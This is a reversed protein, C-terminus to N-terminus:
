VKQLGPQAFQVGVTTGTGGAGAALSVQANHAQAIEHVIALGLGSGDVGSGLVRYFREFVREREESPIGPGNDEVRLCIGRHNSVYVTVNGGPQTYRVANDILNAILERLSFHDGAIVAPVSAGEFGLDIGKQIAAPVLEQTAQRAVSNLDVLEFKDAQLADPEVRALALLQNVLHAARDASTHIQKLAKRLDEPATQKLAFETQTKLGALPTRLQHAANAVFRRQADIDKQLRGLLDNIATVLPRVEQPANGEAVPSLDRQTRSAIAAQVSKLPALGRTVGFWVALAALLILVLQPVVVGILINSALERRGVLTEAVQILVTKGTQGTVPVSMLAIRVDDAGIRADRFDPEEELDEMDEGTPPPVITDGALFQRGPDIVQYYLKDKSSERLIAQAEPPLELVVRGGVDHLRIALSRALDLLSSDYAGTAFVMALGYTIGAAVLWLSLIPILLWGLLQSRISSTLPKM